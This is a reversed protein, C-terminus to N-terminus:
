APPWLRLILQGSPAMRRLGFEAVEVIGLGASTLFIAEAGELEEIGAQVERCEINEMVHERTTGPLCGTKLSPTYLVDDRLWFVNAMCGSTVEGRENLRIAEDFGRNKVDDIAMINELYNCSKTGALPSLSNVSHSSITLRVDERVARTESITIALATKRDAKVPWLSSSGQDFFTLRARGSIIQNSSILDLLAGGTSEESHKTFDLGLRDASGTLRAWHKDWLLPNSNRIAVTTFVGRGYLLASSLPLSVQDSGSLIQGDFYYSSEM